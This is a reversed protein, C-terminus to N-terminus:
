PVDYALLVTNDGRVLELRSLDGGTFHTVAPMQFVAGPSAEWSGIQEQGAGPGFAVLRVTNPGEATESFTCELDVRTGGATSTLRVEAAVPSTGEVPVMAVAPGATEETWALVGIGILAVLVVAAAFSLARVGLSESGARSRTSRAPPLGAQAPSGTLSPDFLKAFEDADLRSLLDPLTSIDRVAERCFSCTALHGEFAAREAPSLAGLM